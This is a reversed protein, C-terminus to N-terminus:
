YFQVIRVLAEDNHSMNVKIIGDNSMTLSVTMILYPLFHEAVSFRKQFTNDTALGGLGVTQSALARKLYSEVHPNSCKGEQKQTGM